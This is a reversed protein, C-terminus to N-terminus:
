RKKVLEKDVSGKGGSLEEINRLGIIIQLKMM